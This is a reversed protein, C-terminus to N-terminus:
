RKSQVYANLEDKSSSYGLADNVLFYAGKDLTYQYAYKAIDLKSNEYNFQQVIEKVQQSTFYNSSITQKAITLKTNDFFENHLSQKFQEFSQANMGQNNYQNNNNNYQGDNSNRYDRNNNNDRNNNYGEDDGDNECKKHHKKQRGYGYGKGNGNNGYDYNGNQYLQRETINAQGYGNINISTEMGPKFYLTTNYLERQRQKGFLNTKLEYIAIVHNGPSLSGINVTNGSGNNANNGNSQYQYSNDIMVTFNGQSSASVILASNQAFNNQGNNPGRGSNNQWQAFVSFCVLILFVSTFLKKM